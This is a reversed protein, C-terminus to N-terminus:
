ALSNTRRTSVDGLEAKLMAFRDCQQSHKLQAQGIEFIPTCLFAILINRPEIRSVDLSHNMNRGVAIVVYGKRGEPMVSIRFDCQYKRNGKNSCVMYIRARNDTALSFTEQPCSVGRGDPHTLEHWHKISTRMQDYNRYHTDVEPRIRASSTTNSATGQHNPNNGLRESTASPPYSVSHSSHQVHAHHLNSPIDSHAQNYCDAVGNSNTHPTGALGHVHQVQQHFSSSAEPQFAASSASAAPAAAAATSWPYNSM